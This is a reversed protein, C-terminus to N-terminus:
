SLNNPHLAQHPVNFSLYHFYCNFCTSFFVSKSKSFELIGLTGNPKLVRFWEKLVNEIERRKFHELVHCNYILDISDSKFISLKDISTVHDVHSYDIVDIHIFGPIFKKGCGLHLKKIKM